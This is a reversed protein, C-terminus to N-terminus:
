ELNNADYRTVLDAYRSMCFFQLHDIVLSEDAPMGALGATRM